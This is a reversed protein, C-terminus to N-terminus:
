RSEPALGLSPDLPVLGRIGALVVTVPDYARWRLWFLEYDQWGLWCLAAVLAVVLFRAARRRAAGCLEWLLLLALVRLPGELVAVYRLNKTFPSLVAVQCLYVLALAVSLSEYEGRRWRWLATVVGALGLATPGPSM